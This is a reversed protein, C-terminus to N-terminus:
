TCGELNLQPPPPLQSFLCARSQALLIVERKIICTSLEIPESVKNRFPLTAKHTLINCESNFSKRM